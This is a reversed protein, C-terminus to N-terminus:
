QWGKGPDFASPVHTYGSPALDPRYIMAHSLEGAQIVEDMDTYAETYYEVQLITGAKEWWASRTIPATRIDGTPEGLKKVCQSFTDNCGIGGVLPLRSAFKFPFTVRWVNKSGAHYGASAPRGEQGGEASEWSVMFLLCNWQSDNDVSKDPMESFPIGVLSSIVADRHKGLWESLDAPLSSLNTVLRYSDTADIPCVNDEHRVAPASAFMRAIWKRLSSM